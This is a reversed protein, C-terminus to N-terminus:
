FVFSTGILHYKQLKGFWPLSTMNDNLAIVTIFLVMVTKVSLLKTQSEYTKTHM